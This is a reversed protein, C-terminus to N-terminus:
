DMNDKISKILKIGKEGIVGKAVLEKAVRKATLPPKVIFRLAHLAENESASDTFVEFLMPCGVHEGNFFEKYVSLFEEKGSASLYRFGLSEAYNKVLARSQCGYHGGAAVYKDADDGLLSAPHQYNRFEQGKGNNVLLLRLNEGVHRNGLANMDYFFALDGMIGFYIKGPDVLSAGILTSLGGDIGFGGVNCSGMVTPPLPFFNWSRFSNNIAAHVVCGAPIAKCAQQAIWLNSFPLEPLSGLMAECQGNLESYLSTDKDEGVAYHCFFSTEDMSMVATLKGFRDHYAGDESVMWWEGARQMAESTYYDGSVTGIYIVLRIEPMVKVAGEQAAVISYNVRYKGCYNSTIDCLVAANNKECFREVAQTAKADWKKHAGVLVVIRGEPLPPLEDGWGYTRTVRVTPLEKVAYGFGAYSEMVVCVPGGGGTRLNNIAENLRTTVWKEDAHNRCLPINVKLKAVDNPLVANDIAQPEYCGTHAEGRGTMVALIPLKRYYAETLGPLYNRSATAETCTIVVPEGSEAAIGCAMYAASREDVCSVMEFYPDHQMSVVLAMNGTGPSAVVRRIGYQKLLALLILTGSDDSYFDKRM